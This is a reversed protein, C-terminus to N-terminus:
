LSPEEIIVVAVFVRSPFKEQRTSMRKLNTSVGWVRVHACDVSFGNGPFGALEYEHGNDKLEALTPMRLVEPFVVEAYWKVFKKFFASHVTTSIFTDGSLDDLTVNRTLMRLSGLVLLHIPSPERGTADRPAKWFNHEPECVSDLKEYLISHIRFVIASLKRMETCLIAGREILTSLTILTDSPTM